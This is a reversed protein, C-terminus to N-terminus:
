SSLRTDDDREEFPTLQAPVTISVEFGRGVDSSIQFTGGHEEVRDSMSRLGYGEKVLATGEGNDLMNLEIESSNCNLQIATLSAKGHKHANTLFEQVIRYISLQVQQSVATMDGSSHFTINMGTIASFDNILTRISELFAAKWDDDRMARVSMRVEQLAGRALDECKLLSDYSKNQDIPHLKRTVQLQVLLSTLMHGISDHIERAIRSREKAAALGEVQKAYQRLQDYLEASEQRAQQYYRILSGIFTLFVVFATNVIISVIDISDLLRYEVTLLTVWYFVLLILWASVLHPSRIRMFLILGVLGIICQDPLNGGLFVFGYSSAALFDIAAVLLFWRMKKTYDYLIHNTIFLIITGIVFADKWTPIDSQAFFYVPCYLLIFGIRLAFLMRYNIPWSKM